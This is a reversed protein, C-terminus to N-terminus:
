PSQLAQNNASASGSKGDTYSDYPVDADTSDGSGSDYIVTHSKTAEKHTDNVSKPVGFFVATYVIVMIISLILGIASLIVGAIAAGRLRNKVVLGVIGLALGV